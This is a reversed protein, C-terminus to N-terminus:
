GYGDNLQQSGAILLLEVGRLRLYSRTLFIPEAIVSRSAQVLVRLGSAFSRLGPVKKLLRRITQAAGANSTEKVNPPPPAQAGVSHESEAVELRRIPFSTVGHRLQTDQPNITFGLIEAAPIRVRANQIVAALLAEDGLNRTGGHSFVGIKRRPESVVSSGSEQYTRM